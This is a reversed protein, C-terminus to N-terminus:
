PIAKQIEDISLPRFSFPIKGIASIHKPKNPIDFFDILHFDEEKMKLIELERSDDPYKFYHILEAEKPILALVAALRMKDSRNDPSCHVLRHDFFVADGKALPIDTLFREQLQASIDEFPVPVNMGRPAGAYTHSHPAVQLNGNRGDMDCLALWISVSRYQTEDVLSWDQHLVMGSQAGPRKSAFVAMVPKYDMLFGKALSLVESVIKDYTKRRYGADNNWNSITFPRSDVSDVQSFFESLDDCVHAAAFDAVVAYGQGSITRELDDNIFIRRM